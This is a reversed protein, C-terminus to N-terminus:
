LRQEFITSVMSNYLRSFEMANPTLIARTYNKIIEPYSTVMFLGDQLLNFLRKAWSIIKCILLLLLSFINLERGILVYLHFNVLSVNIM